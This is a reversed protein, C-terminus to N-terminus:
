KIEYLGKGNTVYIVGSEGIIASSRTARRPDTAALTSDIEICGNGAMWTETPNDLTQGPILNNLTRACIRGDRTGVVAFADPSLAPSTDVFTAPVSPILLTNMCPVGFQPPNTCPPLTTCVEDGPCSDGTCVQDTDLSCRGNSCEGQGPDCSDMRCDQTLNFVGDKVCRQFYLLSGNLDRIGFLMGREDMAYVINDFTTESGQSFAQSVFGTSARIISTVPPTFQWKFAAPPTVGVVSGSSGIAYVSASVSPSAQIPPQGPQPPFPVGIAVPNNVPTGGFDVARLIGEPTTVYVTGSSDLAPSATIPGSARVSWRVTGDFNLARLLGDDAGIFISALSLDLSNVLISASSKFGNLGPEGPSPFVWICDLTNGREQLAFLRRDNSGDDGDNGVIITNGPSVAPAATVRGVPICGSTGLTCVSCSPDDAPPGVMSYGEFVWRFEGSKNISVLGSETALIIHGNKDITPTSLTVEDPPVYLLRSTGGNREITTGIGSNAIDHRLTGWPVNPIPPPGSSGGSDCAALVVALCLVLRSRM